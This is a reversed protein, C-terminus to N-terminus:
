SKMADKAVGAAEDLAAKPTAKGLLAKQIAQTLADNVANWAPTPPLGTAFSLSEKFPQFIPTTFHPDAETFKDIPEHDLTKAWRLANPKSVLWKILDISEKQHQSNTTVMYMTTSSTVGGGAPGNPAKGIGLKWPIKADRYNGIIWSGFPAMGVKGAKLADDSNAYQWGTVDPPTVKYKKVLDVIYQLATVGPAQNFLPILTDDVIKGGAELLFPLFLQGGDPYFGLGYEDGHTMKQCAATFEDWTTPFKDVGDKSFKDQNYCFVGTFKDQPLGVIKGQYTVEKWCVDYIASRMDWDKLSDDLAVLKNRTGLYYQYPYDARIIDPLSNTQVATPIKTPRQAQPIEFFNIKVNPNQKTYEAGLQHLLTIEASSFTDWFQLTIPGSNGGTLEGSSGGGCADLASGVILTGATATVVRLADRRTIHQSSESRGNSPIKNMSMCFEKTSNLIIHRQVSVVDIHAHSFFYMVRQHADVLRISKQM